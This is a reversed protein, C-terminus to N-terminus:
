RTAWPELPAAPSRYAREANLPQPPAEQRPAMVERGDALRYTKPAPAPPWGGVVGRDSDMPYGERHNERILYYILGAFFIWFVYLVLQAVDIYQPSPEPAWARSRTPRDAPCNPSGSSAPTAILFASPPAPGRRVLPGLVILTAFLMGLELHYVVSYGTAPHQLVEGLWGASAASSVVDRLAGGFAIAAGACTAQVAGWAGLVFGNM